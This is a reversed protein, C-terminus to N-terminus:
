LINITHNPHTKQLLEDVGEVAIERFRKDLKRAAAKEEPTSPPTWEPPRRLMIRTGRIIWYRRYIIYALRGLLHRM